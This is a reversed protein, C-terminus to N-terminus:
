PADGVTFIDGDRFKFTFILEDTEPNLRVSGGVVDLDKIEIKDKVRFICNQANLGSMKKSELFGGAYLRKNM